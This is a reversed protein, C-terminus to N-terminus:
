SSGSFTTALGILIAALALSLPIVAIQLWAQRGALQGSGTEVRSEMFEDLSQRQRADGGGRAARRGTLFILTPLAAFIAFVLAVILLLYDTEGDKGFALWSSVVFVVTSLLVSGYVKPHLELGPALRLSTPDERERSSLRASRSGRPSGARPSPQRQPDSVSAEKSREREITSMVGRKRSRMPAERPARGQHIFDVAAARARPREDDL